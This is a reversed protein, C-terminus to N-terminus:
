PKKERQELATLRGDIEDVRISELLCRLIFAGAKATDLDTQGNRMEGYLAALERRVGRATTLRFRRVKPMTGQDAPILEGELPQTM